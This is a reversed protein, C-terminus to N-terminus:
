QVLVFTNGAEKEGLQGHAQGLDTQVRSTGLIKKQQQGNCVKPMTM